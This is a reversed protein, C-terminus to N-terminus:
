KIVNLSNIFSAWQSDTLNVKPKIFMLTGATNIVATQVGNLETPHTLAVTGLNTQIESYENLKSVLTPFYQPIDTFQSPTLQETVYLSNTASKATYSLIGQSADYKVSQKDTTWQKDGNATVYIQFVIQQKISTPIIGATRDSSYKLIVLSGIALALIIVSIRLQTRSKHVGLRYHM